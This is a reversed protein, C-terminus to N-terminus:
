KYCSCEPREKDAERDYEWAMYLRSPTAADGRRVYFEAAYEDPIEISEYGLDRINIGHGVSQVRGPDIGLEALRDWSAPTTWFYGGVYM